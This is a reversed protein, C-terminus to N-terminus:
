KVRPIDEGFEDKEPELGSFDMNPNTRLVLVKYLELAEEKKIIKNRKIFKKSIFNMFTEFAGLSVRGMWSHAIMLM